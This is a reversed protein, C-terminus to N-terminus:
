VSHETDLASTPNQGHVVTKALIQHDLQSHAKNGCLDIRDIGYCDKLGRDKRGGM